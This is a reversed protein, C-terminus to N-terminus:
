SAARAVPAKGCEPCVADAALGGRDYGCSICARGPLRRRRLDARWLAAAPLLLALAFPWVPAIITYGGPTWNMRWDWLRVGPDPARGVQFGPPADEGTFVASGDVRVLQVGAAGIGALRRSDASIWSFEVWRSIVWICAMALGAITFLWKLIGTVRAPM